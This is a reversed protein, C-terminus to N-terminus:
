ARHCHIGERVREESAGGGGGGGGVTHVTKLPFMIHLNWASVMPFPNMSICQYCYLRAEAKRELIVNYMYKECRHAREMAEECRDLSM